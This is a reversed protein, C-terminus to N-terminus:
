SEGELALACEVQECIAHLIAIHAQQILPTDQAPVELALACLASLPNTRESVLSITTMGLANARDAAALLNASHGSTSILLLVDGAKGLGQVQRAFIEEFGYDNSVSTLISSDVTLAIAPFACRERKYRGVLEAAFHQADAASGGNGCILVKGGSEISSIILSGALEILCALRLATQQLVESGAMLTSFCTATGEASTTHRPLQAAPSHTHFPLICLQCTHGQRNDETPHDDIAHLRAICHVDPRIMELWADLTFDTYVLVYDVMHMAAILRARDVPSAPPSELADGDPYIDAVPIGVVLVDGERKCAELFTAYDDDLLDTCGITTVVRKGDRRLSELRSLFSSFPIREESHAYVHINHM